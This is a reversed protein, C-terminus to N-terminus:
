EGTEMGISIGISSLIEKLRDKKLEKCTKEKGVHEEKTINKKQRKEIVEKEKNDKIKWTEYLENKLDDASKLEIEELIKNIQNLRVYIEQGQKTEDFNNDINDKEAELKSLKARISSEYDTIKDKLKHFKYNM